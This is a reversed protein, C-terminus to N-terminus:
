LTTAEAKCDYPQEPDFCFDPWKGSQKWYDVLGIRKAVIMFRPDHRFKRLSPRFMVGALQSIDASAPLRFIVDFFDNERHLEGYAQAHGVIESPTLGRRRYLDQLFAMFHDINAETPDARTRYYLQLRPNATKFADTKLMDRPNGFRLQFAYQLAALRETGPWLREARRLEQQAADIRGSYALVLVYNHFADPSTPELRAAEKADEIAESMRGVNSLAVSRYGLVSPSKPYAAKAQDLLRLAEGFASTPLLTVQALTAEPMRPNLKRAERIFQELKARSRSPDEAVANSEALLLKAWAAQFDPADKVVAEFLPIGAARTEDGAEAYQSCGTLYLKFTQVSLSKGRPQLGEVACGLMRGVNYTMSQKLDAATGSGRDFQRSWLIGGDKGNILVLKIANGPASRGGVQLKLDPRKDANGLLQLSGDQVSSLNSLDVLLDGATSQAAPDTAELAVAITGNPQRALLWVSGAAVVALAIAIPLWMSHWRPTTEAEAVSISARGSDDGEATATTEIDILLKRFARPTRRGKWGSFNITQFQRFGLPPITGDLTVPVLRGTDRGAAAEDRVWNSEVADKSWLVVVVDADNLSQEIVKSFQSGSRIHLDWWVSHGAKELAVAIPRAKAADDHDYSLFVSAM